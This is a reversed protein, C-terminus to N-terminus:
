LTANGRSLYRKATAVLHRAPTHLDRGEVHEDGWQTDLIKERTVVVGAAGPSHSSQCFFRLLGCIPM